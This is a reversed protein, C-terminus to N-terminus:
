RNNTCFFFSVLECVQHVEKFDNLRSFHIFKQKMLAVFFFVFFFQAAHNVFALVFVSSAVAHLLHVFGSLNM